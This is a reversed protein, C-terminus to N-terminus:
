DKVRFPSEPVVSAAPAAVLARKGVSAEVRTAAAVAEAGWDFRAVFVAMVAAQLATTAALGIWLGTLGLGAKFTLAATATVGICWYCVLNLLAAAGQRGAGRVVGALAGNTGDSVVTAAILPMVHATAAVVAPDSTFVRPWATRAAALAAALLLSAVATVVTAVTAARAAASPRNAGLEQGVRTAVANAVGLPLSYCLTITQFGAGTVPVAVDANPLAGAMFIIVEFTWWEGVVQAASPLAVALFARWGALAAAPRWGPWASRGAPAAVTREHHVAGLTLVLTAAIAGVVYAAAAGALGQARPVALVAVAASVAGSAIAAVAPVAVCNQAVLYRRVCENVCSLVLAPAAARVFAVAGAALAPPQHALALLAALPGFWLALVLTATTAMVALSRQLLLGLAAHEGAGSAQACLTELGSALGIALSLGTM